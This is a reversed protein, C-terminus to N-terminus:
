SFPTESSRTTNATTTDIHSVANIGIKRNTNGSPRNTGRQDEHIAPTITTAATPNATVSTTPPTVSKDPRADMLAGALKQNMATVMM